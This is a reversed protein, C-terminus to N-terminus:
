NSRGATDSLGIECTANEDAVERGCWWRVDATRGVGERGYVEALVLVLASGGTSKRARCVKRGVELSVCSDLPVDLLCRNGVSTTDGFGIWAESHTRKLIQNPINFLGALETALNTIAQRKVQVGAVDSVGYDSLAYTGTGSEDGHLPQIAVTCSQGRALSPSQSLWFLCRADLSCEDAPIMHCRDMSQPTRPLRQGTAPM